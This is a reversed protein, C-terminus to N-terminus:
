QKGWKKNNLQYKYCRRKWGISFQEWWSGSMMKCRMRYLRITIRPSNKMRSPALYERLRRDMGVQTIFLKLGQHMNTMQIEVTWMKKLVCKVSNHSCSFISAGPNNRKEMKLWRQERAKSERGRNRAERVFDIPPMGWRDFVFMLTRRMRKEEEGRTAHIADWLRASISYTLWDSCIVHSKNSHKPVM